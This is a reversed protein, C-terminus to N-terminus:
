VRKIKDWNNLVNNFGSAVGMVGLTAGAAKIGRVLNGNYKLGQYLGIVAAMMITEEQRLQSLTADKFTNYVLELKKM